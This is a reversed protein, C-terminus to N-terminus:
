RIHTQKHTSSNSNRKHSFAEPCFCCKFPKQGTHIRKHVTLHGSQTFAKQCLSCQFKRERTHYHKHITLKGSANFSKECISCKFPKEGTHSHYHIILNADYISTNRDPHYAKM